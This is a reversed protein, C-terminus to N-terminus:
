KQEIALSLLRHKTEALMRDVFQKANESMYSSPIKSILTRWSEETVAALRDLWQRGVNPRLCAAVKFADIPSLPKNNNQGQYLASRARDVYGGVTRPNDRSVLREQFEAESMNRALSSAHDYSPALTLLSLRDRGPFISIAGWNEHHRDTNGIWADLLLYGVFMDAGSAFRLAANPTSGFLDIRGGTVLGLATLCSRVTHAPVRYGSTIPYTPDVRQVLLENGHILEGTQRWRSPLGKSHVEGICLFDFVVVGREQNCVALEAHASPVGLLRALECGLKEAWDEGTCIGDNVRAYKFLWRQGDDHRLWFKRKSGLPEDAEQLYATIDFVQFPM